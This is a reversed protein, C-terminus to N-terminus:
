MGALINPSVLTEVGYREAIKEFGRQIEGITGIGFGDIDDYKQVFVEQANQMAAQWESLPLPTNGRKKMTDLCLLAALNVARGVNKRGNGWYSDAMKEQGDNIERVFLELIDWEPDPKGLYDSIKM